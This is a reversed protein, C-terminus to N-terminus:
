ASVESYEYSIHHFAGQTDMNQVGRDDNDVPSSIGQRPNGFVLAYVGSENIVWGGRQGLEIGNQYQSKGDIMVRDDEDVHRAIDRNQNEYGLASAVDKGVFWPEGNIVTTRVTGFEDNTFLTVNTSGGAGVSATKALSEKSM